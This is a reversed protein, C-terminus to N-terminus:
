RIIQAGDGRIRHRLRDHGQETNAVISDGARFLIHRDAYKGAYFRIGEYKYGGGEHISNLNHLPIGGRGLGSGMYSVGKM